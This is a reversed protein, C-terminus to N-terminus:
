VVLVEHFTFTKTKAQILETYRTLDAPHYISWNKFIFAQCWDFNKIAKEHTFALNLIYACIRQLFVEGPLSFVDWVDLSIGLSEDEYNTPGGAVWVVGM